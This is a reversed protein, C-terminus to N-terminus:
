ANGKSTAHKKVEAPTYGRYQVGHDEAWVKLVSQFEYAVGVGAAHKSTHGYAIASEFVLMDVGCSNLIETLKGRLRILRMGSSEDKRISLDFMGSPGSSHAFGCKTAADIALINKM